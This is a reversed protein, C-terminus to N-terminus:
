DMYLLVKDHLSEVLIVELVSSNVVPPEIELESKTTKVGCSIIGVKLAKPVEILPADDQILAVDEQIM